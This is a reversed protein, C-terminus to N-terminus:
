SLAVGSFLRNAMSERHIALLDLQDELKAKQKQIATSHSVWSRQQNISPYPFSLTDLIGTSMHTFAGDPGIKLRGVRGKCHTMLAVFYEPVLQSGLRLRILNTTILSISEGSRAVCMKGVTGARSILIDGDLVSYAALNRAKRESVWARFPLQMQGSGSINDMNWLPVGEQTVDSKKLASGFPGCRTGDAASVYFDSLKRLPLGHPNLQPDGFMDLFVSQLLQDLKAIAERRKARLADSKDLIAAIRRQEPLTPFPIKCRRVEPFHDAYGRSEIKLQSLFHFLFKADLGEMPMLLKVNPGPVFPRDVFKARRTHGGYLVLGSEPRVVLDERDTWGEIADAGQGVVPFRGAELWESQPLGSAGSGRSQVADSFDLWEWSM